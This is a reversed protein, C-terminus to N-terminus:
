SEEGAKIAAIARLSAASMACAIDSKNRGEFLVHGSKVNNRSVYAEVGEPTKDYGHCNMEAPVMHDIADQVNESVNPGGAGNVAKGDPRIWGFDAYRGEATKRRDRVWGVALLCEDSIERSGAEAQELKEILSTM